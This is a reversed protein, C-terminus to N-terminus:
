LKEPGATEREAWTVILCTDKCRPCARISAARRQSEESTDLWILPPHGPNSCRLKPAERELEKLRRDLATAM